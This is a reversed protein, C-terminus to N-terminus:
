AREGVAGRAKADPVGDPGAPESDTEKEEAEEDEEVEIAPQFSGNPEDRFLNQTGLFDGEDDFFYWVGNVDIASHGNGEAPVACAQYMVGMRRFLREFKVRDTAMYGHRVQFLTDFCPKSGREFEQCCTPRQDYITCTMTKRDLAACWLESDRKMYRKGDDPDIETLEEPTDDGPEVEAHLCCCGGCGKCNDPLTVIPM